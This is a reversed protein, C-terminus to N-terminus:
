KTLVKRETIEKCETTLKNEARVRCQVTGNEMVVAFSVKKDPHQQKIKKAEQLMKERFLEYDLQSSAGGHRNIAEGYSNFLKKLSDEAIGKKSAAFKNKEKIKSHMEAKFVDKRFVGQEREREIRRWYTTYTGLRHRLARAKFVVEGYRSPLKSLKRFSRQIDAEEKEPARPLVGSFYQEYSIRLAELKEEVEALQALLLSRSIENTPNNDESAKSDQM